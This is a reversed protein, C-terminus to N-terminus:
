QGNSHTVEKRHIVKSYCKQAPAHTLIYCHRIQRIKITKTIPPLHGYLQRKTPAAELVQEIKSAANKYLQRWAKEIYTKNADMSHM